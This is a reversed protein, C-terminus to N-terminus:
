AAPDQLAEWEKIVMEGLLIVYQRPTETGRNRFYIDLGIMAAGAVLALRPATLVIRDLTGRLRDDLPRQSAQVVEVFAYDFAGVFEKREKDSLNSVYTAFNFGVNSVEHVLDNRLESLTHIFRRAGKDLLDFAKVFALKGTRVNSTELYAFVPLLDDKGLHDALLHTLAAELFAHSKIVFSWDNEHDYLGRLFGAPLGLQNEIEAIPREQPQSLPM